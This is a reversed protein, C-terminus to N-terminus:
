RQLDHLTEEHKKELSRIIQQDCKREALTAILETVESLHSTELDVDKIFSKFLFGIFSIKEFMNHLHNEGFSVFNYLIINSDLPSEVSAM